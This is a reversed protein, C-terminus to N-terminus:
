MRPKTTTNSGGPMWGIRVLPDGYISAVGFLGEFWVDVTCSALRLRFARIL